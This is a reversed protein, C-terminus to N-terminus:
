LRIFPRSIAFYYSSALLNDKVRYSNYGFAVDCRGLGFGFDRQLGCYYKWGFGGSQGNTGLLNYNLGTGIFPDGEWFSNELLYLTAELQCPITFFGQQNAAQGFIFGTGLKYVLADEALGLYNGTKLPDALKLNVWGGLYNLLGLAAGIESEKHWGFIGPSSNFTPFESTPQATPYNLIEGSPEPPTLPTTPPNLPSGWIATALCCGLLLACLIKMDTMSVIVFSFNKDLPAL